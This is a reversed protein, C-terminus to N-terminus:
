LFLQSFDHNFYKSFSDFFFHIISKLLAIALFPLERDTRPWFRTPLLIFAAFVSKPSVHNALVVKWGNRATCRGIRAEKTLEWGTKAVNQQMKNSKVLRNSKVLGSYFVGGLHRPHRHFIPSLHHPSQGGRFESQQLFFRYRNKVQVLVSGFKGCGYRAM